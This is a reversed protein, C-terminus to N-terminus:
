EKKKSSLLKELLLSRESESMGDVDKEIEDHTRAWRVKSGGGASSTSSDNKCFTSIHGEEGCKYCIVQNQKGQKAKTNSSGASFCNRKAVLQQLQTCQAASLKTHKYTCNTGRTCKGNQYFLCIGRLKEGPESETSNAGTRLVLVEDGKQKGKGKKREKKKKRKRKEEGEDRESESGSGDTQNQQRRTHKELVSMQLQMADLIQKPTADPPVQAITTLMTNKINKTADSLVDILKQRMLDSDVKLGVENMERMLNHYRMVFTKFLEGSKYSFRTLKNNISEKALNGKNLYTLIHSHLGFVDGVDMGEYISKDVKPITKLILQWANMRKEKMDKAEVVFYKTVGDVEIRVNAQPKIYKFEEPIGTLPDVYLTLEKEFEKQADRQNEAIRKANERVFREYLAQHQDLDSMQQKAEQQANEREKTKKQPTAQAEQKVTQVIERKMKSAEKESRLVTQTVQAEHVCLYQQDKPVKTSYEKQLFVTLGFTNFCTAIGKSWENANIFYQGNKSRKLEKLFEKPKLMPLSQNAVMNSGSMSSAMVRVSYDTATAREKKVTTLSRVKYDIQKRYSIHKM